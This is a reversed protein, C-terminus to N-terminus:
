EKNKDQKSKSSMASFKSKLKRVTPLTKKHFDCEPDKALEALRKLASEASVKPRGNEGEDFFYRLAANIHPTYSYIIRPRNVAWGLFFTVLVFQICEKSLPVHNETDQLKVTVILHTGIMGTRIQKVGTQVGHQFLTPRWMPKCNGAKTHKALGCATDFTKGCVDCKHKPPTRRDEAALGGGFTQRLSLKYM